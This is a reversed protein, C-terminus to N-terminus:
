KLVGAEIGIQLELSLQQLTKGYGGPRELGIPCRVEHILDPQFVGTLSGIEDSRSGLGPHGRDVGLIAFRCRCGQPVSYVPPLTKSEFGSREASFVPGPTPMKLLGHDQAICFSLDDFEDTRGGVDVILLASLFGQLRAFVIEALNEVANRPKYASQIRGTLDILGISRQQIEKAHRKLLQVGPSGVTRDVRSIKRAHHHFKRMRQCGSSGVITFETISPGIAEISPGLSANKRHLVCFASDSAPITQDGINVITLAGLFRQLSLSCSDRKITSLM